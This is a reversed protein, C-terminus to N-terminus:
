YSELIIGGLLASTVDPKYTTPAFAVSDVDQYGKSEVTGDSYIEPEIARQGQGQIYLLLAFVMLMLVVGIWFWMNLLPELSGKKHM